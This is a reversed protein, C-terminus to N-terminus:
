EQGRVWADLSERTFLRPNRRVPVLEGRKVRADIAQVTCDLYVAAGKTSLFGGTGGIELIRAVEERITERIEDMLGPILIKGELASM